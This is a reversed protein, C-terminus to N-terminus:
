KVVTSNNITYEAGNYTIVGDYGWHLVGDQIYYTNGNYVCLGTFDWRLTSNRVYYWTGNYYVLTEIGWKLTSNKVYYWTGNYQVLTEVGWILQGKQVYYWTKNYQVLGTYNKQLTSNNLYYWDKGIYTLGNIGWIIEGNQIYYTTGKYEFLGIFSWDIKGDKVYYWTKNTHQVLTTTKEVVGDVIYYWIKDINQVLGTKKTFKGNVYYRSEGDAEDIIGTFNLGAKSTVYVDALKEDTMVSYIHIQTEGVKLFYIETKDSNLSVVSPDDIVLRVRKDIVSSPTVSISLEYTGMEKDIYIKTGDSNSSMSGDVFFRVKEPEATSQTYFEHFYKLIYNNGLKDYLGTVEVDVHMGPLYYYNGDTLAKKLNDPVYYYLVKSYKDYYINSSTINYSTGNLTYKINLDKRNTSDIIGSGIDISWMSGSEVTESLVYGSPPWTYFADNNGLDEDSIFVSLTSYRGYNKNSPSIGTSIGIAQRSLVSNRHGVNPNLNYQDDVYGAISGALGSGAAINGEWTYTIGDIEESGAGTGKRGEAYFEDSMDSPKPPYHSFNGESALLVAGKQNRELFQSFLEITNSLGYLWRFLKFQNVADTVVADKVKGASYDGSYVPEVDYINTTYDFKMSLDNYQENIQDKTHTMATNTEITYTKTDNLLSEDITEVYYSKDYLYIVYLKSNYYKINIIKVDSDFEYNKEIKINNLNIKVIANAPSKTYLYDGYRYSSAYASSVNATWVVSVNANTYDIRYLSGYNDIFYDDNIVQVGEAGYYLGTKLNAIQTSTIVGNGDTSLWGFYTGGLRVCVLRGNSTVFSPTRVSYNLESETYLYRNILNGSSNYTVISKSGVANVFINGKNDVAFSENVAISKAPLNTKDFIVTTQVVREQALDYGIIGVKDNDTNNDASKIRYMIYFIGSNNNVEYVTNTNVTYIISFTNTDPDFKYINKNGYFYSYKTNTHVNIFIGSTPFSVKQANASLSGVLNLDGNYNFEWVGDSSTVEDTVSEESNLLPVEKTLELNGENNVDPKQSEEQPFVIHEEQNLGIEDINTNIIDESAYVNFSIIMVIIIFLFLVIKRKM